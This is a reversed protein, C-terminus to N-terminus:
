QLKLFIGPIRYMKSCKRCNLIAPYWALRVDPLCLVTCVYYMMNIYLKIVDPTAKLRASEKECSQPGLGLASHAHGGLTFFKLNNM